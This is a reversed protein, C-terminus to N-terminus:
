KKEFPINQKKLFTQVMEDWMHELSRDLTFTHFSTGTVCSLHKGDFTLNLYLGRVTEPDLSPIHEEVLRRINKQPLCLVFRFNLPTRKGRVLSFCFERVNKWYSYEPLGSDTDFFDKQIYGDIRFTNFTTVEGDIFSFHDFTDKLFLHSTVLRIDILDLSIM